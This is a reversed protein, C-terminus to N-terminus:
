ENDDGQENELDSLKREDKRAAVSFLTEQALRRAAIECYKEEIEIGIAKRGLDKAAVLTTGSGMFPDLITEGNRSSLSVAWKLWGIPKPCPHGNKEASETSRLVTPKAGKNLDPASGYLVCLSLNQFGWRNRGHGSPLYVGGVCDGEPLRAIRSGAMFVLGRGGTVWLSKSVAFPVLLDFNSETDRYSEYGKKALNRDRRKDAQDGLDVGYPPDTVLVDASIHPLIERCDGHYITCLSDQYYPEPMM